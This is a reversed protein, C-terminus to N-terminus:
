SNVPKSKRGPPRMATGAERLLKSVGSKSMRYRKCLDDLSKGEVEYAAKMETLSVEKKPANADGKPTALVPSNTPSAGATRMAAAHALLQKREAEPINSPILIKRASVKVPAVGQGPTSPFVYYQWDRAGDRTDIMRRLLHQGPLRKMAQVKRNAVALEAVTPVVKVKTPNLLFRSRPKEPNTQRGTGAVKLAVTKDAASRANQPANSPKMSHLWAILDAVFWRISRGVKIPEPFGSAPDARLKHLRQRSFGTIECAGKTDVTVATVKSTIAAPERSDNSNKTEKKM